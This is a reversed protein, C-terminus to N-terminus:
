RAYPNLVTKLEEPAQLQLGPELELAKHASATEDAFIRIRSPIGLMSQFAQASQVSGIGVLLPVAQRKQLCALWCAPLFMLRITYQMVVVVVFFVDAMGVELEEEVCVIQQAAEWADFDAFNTLLVLVVKPTPPSLCSTVLARLDVPQGDAPLGFFFVNIYLLNCVRGSEIRIIDSDCEGDISKM